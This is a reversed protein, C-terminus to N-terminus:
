VRDIQTPDGVVAEVNDDNILRFEQDGVKFRTGSHARFMIWDGQKCWAGTPFRRDDTYALDGLDIVKAVMTSTTERAIQEQTKIIGGKTKEEAQRVNVLLKYGKPTPILNELDPKQKEPLKDM